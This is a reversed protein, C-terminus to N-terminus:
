SWYADDWYSLDWLGVAKFEGNRFEAAPEQLGDSREPPASTAAGGQGESQTSRAAQQFIRWTNLM